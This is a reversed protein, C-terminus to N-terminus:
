CLLWCSVPEFLDQDRRETGSIEELDRDLDRRETDWPPGGQWGVTVYNRCNELQNGKRWKSGRWSLGSMTSEYELACARLKSALSEM